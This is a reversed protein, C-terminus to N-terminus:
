RPRKTPAMAIELAIARMDPKDTMGAEYVAKLASHLVKGCIKVTQTKTSNLDYIGFYNRAVQDISKKKYSM